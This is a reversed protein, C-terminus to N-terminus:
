TVPELLGKQRDPRLQLLQQQPGSRTRDPPRDRRNTHILSFATIPNATNPTATVVDVHRWRGDARPPVVSHRDSHDVAEIRCPAGPEVRDVLHTRTLKPPSRTWKAEAAALQSALHYPRWM